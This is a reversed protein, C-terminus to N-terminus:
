VNYEKNCKSLFYNYIFHYDGLIENILIKVIIQIYDLIMVEICMDEDGLKSINYM